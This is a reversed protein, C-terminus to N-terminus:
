GREHEMVPRRVGVTMHVQSRGQVLYQLVEYHLRVGHHPVVRRVHGPPVAVAHGYLVLHHGRSRALVDGSELHAAAATLVRRLVNINLTGLELTETHEAPPVLRVQGHAVGVLGPHKAGKLGKNACPEDVPPQPGYVPASGTGGGQGIGLHLVGNMRRRRNVHRELLMVRSGPLGPSHGRAGLHHDPGCRRPRQGRVQGNGQVGPLKVADDLGLPPTKQHCRPQGPREDGRSRRRAPDELPNGELSRRQLPKRKNMRKIGGAGRKHDVGKVHRHLVSSPAHMGSGPVAGVVEVDAALVPQIHEARHKLVPLEPGGAPLERPEM